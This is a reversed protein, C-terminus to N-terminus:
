LEEERKREIQGEIMEDIQIEIPVFFDTDHEDHMEQSLVPCPVSNKWCFKKCKICKDM